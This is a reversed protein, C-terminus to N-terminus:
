ARDETAALHLEAGDLWTRFMGLTQVRLSGAM